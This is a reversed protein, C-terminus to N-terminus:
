RQRLRSYGPTITPVTGGYTMSGNSATITLPAKSVTVSGAVYNITYNPDAAGSCSSAYPRLRRGPEFQHGHDLLDPQPRSRRRRLRRQRLGHLRAHHHAGHRRLDHDPELGHHDAHRHEGDGFGRFLQHRLQSRGGRRVLVRLPKGLGPEFQHGHDRLDAQDHAVVVSDGNVFGAYSATITPVTGGYTMSRSSATITLPAKTVTVSGAVYSISYNPDAAGSCSSAYPEGLGPEFQDGHDLLDAQDHAVVRTATSSARTARTITPVTGGYTMSGSSATITLPAKTVTVSGAM